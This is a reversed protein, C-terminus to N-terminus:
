PEEKKDIPTFKPDINLHHSNVKPDIVVMNVQKWTFVDLNDILFDKLRQKDEANLEKGVLLTKTPNQPDIPFVELEEIPTAQSDSEIIKPDLIIEM